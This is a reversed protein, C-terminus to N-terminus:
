TSIGLVGKGLEQDTGAEVELPKTRQRVTPCCLPLEALLYWLKHRIYPLDHSLVISIASPM